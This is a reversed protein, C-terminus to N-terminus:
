HCHPLISNCIYFLAIHLVDAYCMYVLYALLCSTTRVNNVGNWFKRLITGVVNGWHVTCVLIVLNVCSWVTLCTHSSHYKIPCYNYYSQLSGQVNSNTNSPILKDTPSTTVNLANSSATYTIVQHTMAVLSICRTRVVSHHCAYRLHVTNCLLQVLCINVNLTSLVHRTSADSSSQFM